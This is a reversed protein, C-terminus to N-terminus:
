TELYVPGGEGWGTGRLGEDDDASQSTSTPGSLKHDVGGNQLSLESIYITRFATGFTLITICSDIHACCKFNRKRRKRQLVSPTRTPKSLLASYLDYGWTLVSDGLLEHLARTSVEYNVNIAIGPHEGPSCTWMQKTVDPILHIALMSLTTGGIFRQEAVWSECLWDLDAHLYFNDCYWIGHKFTYASPGLRCQDYPDEDCHIAPENPGWSRINSFNDIVRQPDSAGFYDKFFIDGSGHSQIYEMAVLALEAAQLRGSAITTGFYGGCGVGRGGLSRESVDETVTISISRGNAKEIHSTDDVGAVEFTSVPDFTLTGPGSASFDYLASVTLSNREISTAFGAELQFRVM